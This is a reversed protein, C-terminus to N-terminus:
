KENHYEGNIAKIECLLDEFLGKFHYYLYLSKAQTYAKYYYELLDQSNM